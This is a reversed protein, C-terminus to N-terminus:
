PRLAVTLLLTQGIAVLLLWKVLSTKTTGLTRLLRASDERDAPAALPAESPNM